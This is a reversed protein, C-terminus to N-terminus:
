KAELISIEWKFLGFNELDDFSLYQPYISKTGLKNSIEVLLSLCAQNEALKQTESLELSLDQWPEDFSRDM